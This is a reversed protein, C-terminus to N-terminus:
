ARGQFFRDNKVMEITDILDETKQDGLQKTDLAITSGGSSLLLTHHRTMFYIVILGISILGCFCLPMIQLTSSTNKIQSSIFSTAIVGLLFSLLAFLLLWPYSSYTMEASCLEELMFSIIRSHGWDEVDM